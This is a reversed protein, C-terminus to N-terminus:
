RAGMMQLHHHMYALPFDTEEPPPSAYLSSLYATLATEASLGIANDYVLIDLLDNHCSEWSNTESITGNLFLETAAYTTALGTTTERTGNINLTLLESATHTAILVYLTNVTPLLAALSVEAYTAGDGVNVRFRNSNIGILMGYERSAGPRGLTTFYERGTTLTHRRFVMAISWNSGIPAISGALLDDVGDSEAYRWGNTDEKLTPKKSTDAQTLPVVNILDTICGIPDGVGAALSGAADQTAGDHPRWRHVLGNIETPHTIPM